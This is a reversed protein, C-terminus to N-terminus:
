DVTRHGAVGPLGAVPCTAKGEGYVIEVVRGVAVRDTKSRRLHVLLGDAVEDLDSPRDEGGVSLGALESRRMGGAFGLLLILRDLLRDAPAQGGAMDIAGTLRPAAFYSADGQSGVVRRGGALPVRRTSWTAVRRAADRHRFQERGPHPGRDRLFHSAEIDDDDGM